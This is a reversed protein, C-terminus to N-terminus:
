LRPRISRWETASEYAHGVRLVTADEFPQAAIQISLPLGEKSYGCCISLAPAGTVNFPTMILKGRVSVSPLKLMEDIRPAPTGSCGTVLADLKATAEAYIAALQARRRLAQIYDVARLMAGSVLRERTIRAYDQPRRKLDREHIAYAEAQLIIRCTADWDALPPLNVEVLKAGCQQLVKLAAEIAGHAEPTAEMDKEYFHRIVGIRMGKIGDKLARAFRPPKRTASAPDAPDHGAIADMVLACDEVTWGMPGCHDLSFALPVVGSRSVLGYTPKLGALGCFASPGRISGSTDSGMAIPLLGAAVAAGSGSSSGGTFRGPGWPNVAPPFPLDFAPGGTAFEHTALKGMLVMGADALKAAVASDAKPVNDILLKSHATTRVGKTSYIDKLGIPIGHLPGRRRGAKIESQAKRAARRAQDALLLVFSNLKKDHLAIRELFAETLEVPSLKKQRIRKGAEAVSLFCLESTM